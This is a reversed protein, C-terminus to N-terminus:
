ADRGGKKNSCAGSCKSSSAVVRAISTCAHTYSRHPSNLHQPKYQYLYRLYVCQRAPPMITPAFCPAACTCVWGAWGGIRRCKILALGYCILDFFSLLPPSERDRPRQKSPIANPDITKWSVRSEVSTVGGWFGIPRPIISPGRQFISGSAPALRCASRNSEIEIASSM